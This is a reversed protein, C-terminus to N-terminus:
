RDELPRAYIRLWLEYRMGSKECVHVTRGPRLEEACYPCTATAEVKWGKPWPM